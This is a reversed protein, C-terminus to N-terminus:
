RERERKRGSWTKWFNLRDVCEALEFTFVLEVFRRSECFSFIDM